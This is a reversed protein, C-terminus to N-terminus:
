YLLLEDPDPLTGGGIGVIYEVGSPDGTGQGSIIIFGDDESLVADPYPPGFTIELDGDAYVYMGDSEINAVGYQENLYADKSNLTFPVYSSLFIYHTSNNFLKCSFGYGVNRDIVVTATDSHRLSVFKKNYLDKNSNNILLLNTDPYIFNGTLTQVVAYATEWEASNTRTTSYVSDWSASSAYMKAQTANWGASALGMETIFVSEEWSDSLSRVTSYVSDWSASSAYSKTRTAEWGATLANSNSYVSDWSASSAVVKAETSEWGASNTNTTSYVSNWHISTNHFGTSITGTVTLSNDNNDTGIGVNGPIYVGGAASVLFQDTRTTSIVNTLSSGKWIWTRDHASEVYSGAAHSTNGRARTFSGESHSALGSTTTNDGEAHSFNGSATTSRGEAHSASGSATTTLGEAHSENGSATTSSGETHSASGSAITTFGEAHSFNGSATTSRGESHSAVGAATTTDGQAHSFNGSATTSRGESHSAVGAATTTDGQAHSFNGSATTNSGEAHSASGSSTSFNGEAHSYQGQAITNEGEAHSTYGSALTNSGEAHSALNSATTVSGEAHSYAGSASTSRGEAHSDPGLAITTNGEAHSSSGFAQTNSGEAHSASGSATNTSGEAHSALGSAINIIGEAHSFDGSALNSRGEAHAASGSAITTLGEAHSDNGSALTNNGQAHSNIGSAISGTGEAFSAVGYARGSNVAFSRNGTASGSNFSTTINNGSIPGLIVIRNSSLFIVDNSNVRFDNSNVIATPSNFISNGTSLLTVVTGNVTGDMAHRTVFFTGQNDITTSYRNARNIQYTIGAMASVAASTNLAIVASVSDKITYPYVLDDPWTNLGMRGASTIVVRVASNTIFSLNFQRRPGISLSAYRSDSGQPNGGDLIYYTSIQNVNTYVENWQDSTAGGVFLPGWGSVVIYQNSSIAGNVTLELIPDRNNIGIKGLSDAGSLYGPPDGVVPWAESNRIHLIPVEADDEFPFVGGVFEAVTNFDPGTAQFVYLAPGPGTNMVSLASTTTFITNRFTADGLATLNGNITVNGNFRNNCNFTNDIDIRAFNGSLGSYAVAGQWGASLANTTLYNSNWAASNNQLNAFWISASPSELFTALDAITTKMEQNGAAPDPNQQYGVLYDTLALQYPGVIPGATLTPFDSFNVFLGM